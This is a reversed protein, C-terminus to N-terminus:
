KLKSKRIIKALNYTVSVALFTVVMAYVILSLLGSGKTTYPRIYINVLEKIAENWALAAVLGLSSTSLTLLQKIFEKKFSSLNEKKANKTM